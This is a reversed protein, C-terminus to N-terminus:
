FQSLYKGNHEITDTAKKSFDEIANEMVMNYKNYMNLMQTKVYKYALSEAKARAVKKGIEPDFNDDPHLTATSSAEFRFINEDYYGWDAVDKFISLLFQNTGKLGCAMVCTVTKKKENVFYRPDNFSLKFKMM